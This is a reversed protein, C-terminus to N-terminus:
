LVALIEDVFTEPDLPMAVVHDAGASRAPRPDGEVLAVVRYRRGASPRFDGLPELGPADSGTVLAVRVDLGDAARALQEASAARDVRFGAGRLLQEAVVAITEDPVHLVAVGRPATLGGGGAALDIMRRAGLYSTSPTEGLERIRRVVDRIRVLASQVQELGRRARDRDAGPEGLLLEVEAMAAMLPNNIEHHLTVTMEGVAALREARVRDGEAVALADRRARARRVRELLHPLSESGHATLLVIAPPNSGARLAGLLDLGNTDPLHQDILVVDAGQAAAVAEAGTAVHAPDPFGAACIIQRVLRVMALDDNVVLIRLGTRV